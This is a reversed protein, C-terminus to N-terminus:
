AIMEPREDFVLVEGRGGIHVVHELEDAAVVHGLTCEFGRHPVGFGLLLSNREPFKEAARAGFDGRANRDSDFIREVGEGGGDLFFEVGAVLADLDLDLGAFVEFLDLAQALIEGLDLQHDVGVRGVREGIPFQELLEFAKIQHHDLLREAPVIEVAM